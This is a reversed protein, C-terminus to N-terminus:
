NLSALPESQNDEGERNTIDFLTYSLTITNVNAPLEPDVIFVLGMNAEEGAKLEQQNFCFCETKHFYPAANAPAVNPIAQAVMDRRTPNRAYFEVATSAGPNVKVQYETPSFEWPMAGNNTAVFQVRVVRESDVIQDESEEYQGETKGGIGAIECFVDYLPPMVFVAFLFMLVVTFLLKIATKRIPRASM